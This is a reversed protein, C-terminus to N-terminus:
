HHIDVTLPASCLDSALSVQVLRNNFVQQEKSQRKQTSLEYYEEMNDRLITELKPYTGWFFGDKIVGPKPNSGAVRPNDRGLAMYLLLQKKAKEDQLCMEVATGQMQESLNSRPM